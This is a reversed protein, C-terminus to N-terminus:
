KYRRSLVKFRRMVKKQLKRFKSRSLALRAARRGQLAWDLQMSMLNYKRYKEDILEVWDEDNMFNGGDKMEYVVDEPVYYVYKEIFDIYKM